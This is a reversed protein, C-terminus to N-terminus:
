VFGRAEFKNSPILEPQILGELVVRKCSNDFRIYHSQNETKLEGNVSGHGRYGIYNLLAELLQPPIPVEEAVSTLFKPTVRYMISMYEDEEIYPVEVTNYTPTNIGLINKYDPDNIAVSDGQEDFAKTIMLVKKNADMHVDEDTGDLKYETKGRTLWLIAEAEELPFRKYLELIGMNVFGLLVNNDEKISLQKLEGAKALNIVEQVTM